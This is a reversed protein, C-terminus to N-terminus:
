TVRVVDGDQEWKVPSNDPVYTRTRDEPAHWLRHGGYVRWESEGTKGLMDPFTALENEGGAFGFHIIRPGVDTTVILEVRGNSLRVSNSWGHFNTKEVNLM